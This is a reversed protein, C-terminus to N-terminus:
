ARAPKAPGPPLRRGRRGRALERRPPPPEEAPEEQEARTLRACAILGGVQVMIVALIANTRPPYEGLSTVLLGCLAATIGLALPYTGPQRAALARAAARAAGWLFTLFLALGILGTEIAVTLFVNHAHDYHLGGIDLLGFRPSEESYNGEGVGLWPQEGVMPLSKEWIGFRTNRQVETPSTITALRERVLTVERATQISNFNFVVATALVALLPIAVRRFPPWAMLVVLSVSAGVIGGRALTLALGGIIAGASALMLLRRWQAGRGTLALSPALALILFFALVNPHAFIAQARNTALRGGSQVEIESSGTMAIVGLIGGVVGICVLLRELEQRSANSVLVCIVLFALWYIVIKGTAVTDQAFFLGTAAVAILGAFALHTVDLPPRRGGALSHVAACAATVLFVLEAPSFNLDWIPIQEFDIPVVLIGAYVGIMPKWAIAAVVIAVLPLVAATTGFEYAVM